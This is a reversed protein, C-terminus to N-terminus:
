SPRPLDATKPFPTRTSRCACNREVDVFTPMTGPPSLTAAFGLIAEALILDEAVELIEASFNAIVEAQCFLDAGCAKLATDFDDVIKEAAAKKSQASQILNAALLGSADDIVCSVFSLRQGNRWGGRHDQHPISRYHSGCSSPGLRPRM